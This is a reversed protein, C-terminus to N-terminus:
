RKRCMEVIIGAANLDMYAVTPVGDFKATLLPTAGHQQLEAATENLHDVAFALHHLGEGKEKLFEMHPSDGAVPQILELEVNGMKAAKILVRGQATFPQGRFVEQASPPPMKVEFPGIGYATLRAVTDELDKVVVGIQILQNFSTNKEPNKPM